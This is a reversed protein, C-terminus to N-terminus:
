PTPGGKVLRLRPEIDRYSMEYRPVPRTRLECFVVGDPIAKSIPVYFRFGMTEDLDGEMMGRTIEYQLDQLLREVRERRVNPTESM